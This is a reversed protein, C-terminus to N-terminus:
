FPDANLSPEVPIDPVTPPEALARERAQMREFWAALPHPEEVAETQPVPELFLVADSETIKETFLGKWQNRISADISAKVYHVPFRRQQTLLRNWGDPMYREKRKAKYDFWETMAIRFSESDTDIFTPQSLKDSNRNKRQERGQEEINTHVENVPKPLLNVPPVAPPESTTSPPESTFTTRPHPLNVPKPVDNVPETDPVLSAPESTLNLKYSSKAGLGRQIKVLNAAELDKLATAIARNSLGTFQMIFSVSPDCRESDQNHCDALCILVLKQTPSVKAMKLHNIAKLSM